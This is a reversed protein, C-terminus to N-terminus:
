ETQQELTKITNLAQTSLLELTKTVVTDHPNSDFTVSSTYDEGDYTVIFTIKSVNM